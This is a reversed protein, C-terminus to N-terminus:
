QRKLVEHLLFGERVGCESNHFTEASFVDAAAMLVALGSLFVPARDPSVNQKLALLVDPEERGLSEYLRALDYRTFSGATHYLSRCMARAARITGGVGLVSGHSVLLPHAEKMQLMEQRLDDVTLGNNKVRVCGEPLSVADKIQDNVFSVFETSGGGVDMMLGTHITRDFSTGIFSCEAEERGSLLKVRNVEPQSVAQILAESNDISRGCATIDAYIEHTDHARCWAIYQKVTSEAASLGTEDMHGDHIHSVLRVAEAHYYIKQIRTEEVSYVAIAVTNSGIDLIAYNM